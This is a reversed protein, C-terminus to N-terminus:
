GELKNMLGTIIRKIEFIQKKITDFPVSSYNKLVGNLKVIIGTLEGDFLENAANIEFLQGVIFSYPSYGTQEEEEVLHLVKLMKGILSSLYVKKGAASLILKNDDVAM